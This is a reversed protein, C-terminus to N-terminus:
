GTTFLTNFNEFKVYENQFPARTTEIKAWGNDYKEVVMVIDYPELQCIINSNDETSMSSRVNWSIGNFFAIENNLRNFMWSNEQSIYITDAETINNRCITYWGELGEGSAPAKMFFIDGNEIKGVINSDDETSFYSRINWMIGSFRVAQWHDFSEEIIPNSTTSIPETSTSQTTTSTSSVESTTQTTSTTTTAESTAQTTSTTSSVESTTQTISTTTPVENTTQTTSTVTTTPVTTTTTTAITTEPKDNNIWVVYGVKEFDSAYKNNYYMYVEKMSSDITITIWHEEAKVVNFVDNTKLFNKESYLNNKDLNKTNYICYSTGTFKILDNKRFSIETRNQLYEDDIFMFTVPDGVSMLAYVTLVASADVANVYGDSNYDAVMVDINTTQGVSLAAYAGLIQSADVASLTGDGNVDGVIRAANATFLNCMCTFSVLVVALLTTLTRKIVNVKM